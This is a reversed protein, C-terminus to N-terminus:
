PNKKSDLLDRVSDLLGSAIREPNVQYRGARIDERIAAVRAADFDSGGPAAPLAHIQGSVQAAEKAREAAEAGSAPATVAKSTRPLPTASPASQDIKM